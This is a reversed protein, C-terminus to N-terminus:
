KYPLAEAQCARSPSRFAAISTSSQFLPVVDILLHRVVVDHVAAYRASVYVYLNKPHNILLIIIKQRWEAHSVVAFRRQIM